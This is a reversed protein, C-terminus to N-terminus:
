QDLQENMDQLKKENQANVQDIQQKLQEMQQQAQQAKDAQLKASTTTAVGGDCAALTFLSLLLLAHRM